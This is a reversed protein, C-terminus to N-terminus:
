HAAGGGYGAYPQGDHVSVLCGKGRQEFTSLATETGVVGAGMEKAYLLCTKLTEM